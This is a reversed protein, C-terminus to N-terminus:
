PKTVEVRYFKRSASASVDQVSHNISQTGVSFTVIVEAFTSLDEGAQVTYIRGPIVKNLQLTAINGTKGLFQFRFWSSPDMPDFGTLFELLNDNSDGDPNADPGANANPPNGFHNIQWIDDIGDAGYSQYNDPNSDLVTIGATGSSGAFAGGLITTTNQYVIGATVQGAATIASVPGSVPYWSVQQLDPYLQTGDDLDAIASLQSLSGENVTGPNAGISLQVVEYLMGPYGSRSVTAFGGAESIGGTGDISATLYYNGGSAQGGGGDVSEALIGVTGGNRVAGEVMIISLALLFLALIKQPTVLLSPNTKPSIRTPM